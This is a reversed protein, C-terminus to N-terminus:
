KHFKYVFFVFIFILISLYIKLLNIWLKASKIEYNHIDSIKNKSDKLTKLYNEIYNNSYYGYIISFLLVVVPILYVFKENFLDKKSMLGLLGFSINSTLFVNRCMSLYGNIIASPNHSLKLKDM